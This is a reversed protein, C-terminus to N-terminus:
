YKPIYYEENKDNFSVHKTKNIVFKYIIFIMIVFLIIGIALYIYFFNDNKYLELSQSELITSNSLNELSFEKSTIDINDM